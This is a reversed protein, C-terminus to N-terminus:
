TDGLRTFTFFTTNYTTTGIIKSGSTISEVRFKIKHTSTDTCDFLYEGTAHGAGTASGDGSDSVIMVTSYSSNDTTVETYLLINDNAIADSYLTPRISWIGTSPFTLIGSSETMGTGIYGFGTSDNRELNASIPM